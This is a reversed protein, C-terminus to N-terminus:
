RPQVSSPTALVPANALATPSPWRCPTATTLVRQQLRWCLPPRQCGYALAELNIWPYSRRCTCSPNLMRRDMLFATCNNLSFSNQM